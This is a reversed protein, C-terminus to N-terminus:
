GLLDKNKKLTAQADKLNQAREKAERAANAEDEKRQRDKYLNEIKSRMKGETETMKDITAQLTTVKAQIKDREAQSPAREHQQWLTDM